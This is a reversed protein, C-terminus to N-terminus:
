EINNEKRYRKKLIISTEKPIWPSIEIPELHYMYPHESEMLSIYDVAKYYDDYMSYVEAIQNYVEWRVGLKTLEEPSIGETYKRRKRKIDIM